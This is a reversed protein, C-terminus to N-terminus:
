EEKGTTEFVSLSEEDHRSPNPTKMGTGAELYEKGRKWATKM